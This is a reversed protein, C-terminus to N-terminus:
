GDEADVGGGIRVGLEELRQHAESSQSSKPYKKLVGRLASVYRDQAKADRYVYAIRLAAEAAQDKFFSEIERLQTVAPETRGLKQLCEATWFLTRPPDDAKRYATIAEEYKGTWQLINGALLTAPGAHQPSNALEEALKLAETVDAPTRMGTHPSCRWHLHRLFHFKGAELNQCAFCARSTLDRAVGFRAYRATMDALALKAGDAMEDLRLKEFAHVARDPANRDFLVVMLQQIQENSMKSFDLKACYEELKPRSAGMLSIWHIVRGYDGPKQLRAFHADLRKTWAAEDGDALRKFEAFAIQMSDDDPLKGALQGVWYGYYTARAAEQGAPFQGHRAVVDRVRQWFLADAALDPGPSQPNSEFTRVAEYFSRLRAVDPRTRVHYAIVRDIAAQAQRPNSQRFTVAVQELRPIGEEARGLRILNEALATLAAAGIPQKVYGEDAALEAWAKIAKDIDGNQAHCEGIRFAALAALPEDDPFFDLVERYVTIAENRKTVFQLGRGKRLIAHPVAASEPFQTLFADYEAVARVFDGAAFVKDAKDLTVGEFTDLKARLAAPIAPEDVPRAAAPLCATLALILSAPGTLRPPPSIM